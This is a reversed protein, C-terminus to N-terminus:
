SKSSSFVCMSFKSADMGLAWFLTAYDLIRANYTLRHLRVGFYKHSNPEQLVSEYMLVDPM